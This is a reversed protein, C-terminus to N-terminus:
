IPEVQVERGALVDYDSHLLDLIAAAFVCVGVCLSVFSPINEVLLMTSLLSYDCFDVFLLIAIFTIHGLYVHTDEYKFSMM